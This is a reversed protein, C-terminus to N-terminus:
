ITVTIFSSGCSHGSYLVTCLWWDATVPAKNCQDEVSSSGGDPGIISSNYVQCVVISGNPSSATALSKSVCCCHVKNKYDLCRWLILPFLFFHIALLKFRVEMRQHKNISTDLKQEETRFNNRHVQNTGFLVLSVYELVPIHFLDVM